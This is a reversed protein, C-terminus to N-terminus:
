RRLTNVQNRIKKFEEFMDASQCDLFSQYLLNRKKITQILESTVWPKRPSERTNRFVKLPHTKDYIPQLINMFIDFAHSADDTEDFVPKWSVKSLEEALNEMKQKRLQRTQKEDVKKEKANVLPM